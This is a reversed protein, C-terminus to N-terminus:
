KKACPHLPGHTRVREIADDFPKLRRSWLNVLGVDTGDEYREEVMKTISEHVHHARVWAQARDLLMPDELQRWEQLKLKRRLARRETRGKRTSPQEYTLKWTASYAARVRDIAVPDLGNLDLILLSWWTHLAAESSYLYPTILGNKLSDFLTSAELLIKPHEWIAAGIRKVVPTLIAMQPTGLGYFYAALGEREQRRFSLPARVEYASPSLTSKAERVICEYREWADVEPELLLARILAVVHATNRAHPPILLRPRITATELWPKKLRQETLTQTRM